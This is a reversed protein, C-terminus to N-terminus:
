PPHQGPMTWHVSARAVSSGNKQSADWESCLEEHQDSITMHREPLQEEGGGDGGGADGGGGDGGGGGGSLGGSDLSSNM